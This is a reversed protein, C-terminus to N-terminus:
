IKMLGLPLRRKLYKIVETDCLSSIVAFFICSHISENDLSVPWLLAKNELITRKGSTMEQQLGASIYPSQIILRM